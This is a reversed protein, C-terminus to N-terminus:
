QRGGPRGRALRRPRRSGSHGPPRQGGGALVGTAASEYEGSLTLWQEEAAALAAAADAREKALTAVRAPDREYLKPDAMAQDIEGIRKGLKGMENELAAIRRQLPALQARREAAVRRAEGRSPGAPKGDRESTDRTKGLVLSRYDDLDGDFPAVTGNAVLWLRDACAELLYRD